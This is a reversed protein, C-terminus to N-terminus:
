HAIVGSLAAGVPARVRVIDGGGECGQLVQVLVTQNVNTPDLVGITARWPAGCGNSVNGFREAHHSLANLRLDRRCNPGSVPLKRAPRHGSLASSVL